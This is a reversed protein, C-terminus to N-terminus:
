FPLMALYHVLEGKGACVAVGLYLNSFNHFPCVAGGRVAGVLAAGGPFEVGSDGSLRMQANDFACLRGLRRVPSKM